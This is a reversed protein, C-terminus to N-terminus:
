NLFAYMYLWVAQFNCWFVVHHCGPIISLDANPIAKYCNTVADINFYMDDEGNIILVPCEIKNLTEKDMVVNNYFSNMMTLCEGWREPEPMLELLGSFYGNYKALLSDASYTAFNERSGRLVEGVGMVVAKTVINPYLAAMTLTSLGGDSFGVVTISDYKLHKVLALADNARQEYSFPENGIYSKGHGRTALCIVRNTKSLEEILKSYESIYGFVGGHLMLIPDGEGYIEYYLKVGSVEFYNGADPNNGYPIEQAQVTFLLCLSFLPIILKLKM